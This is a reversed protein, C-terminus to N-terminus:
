PIGEEGAATQAATSLQRDTSLPTAPVDPSALRDHPEPDFRHTSCM